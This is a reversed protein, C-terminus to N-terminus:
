RPKPGPNQLYGHFLHELAEIQEDLSVPLLQATYDLLVVGNVTSGDEDVFKLREAVSRNVIRMAHYRHLLDDFDPYIKQGRRLRLLCSVAYMSVVRYLTEDASSLPLHFRAMPKLFETHPCGCTAILLGVLSSIAEQASTTATVTRQEITVEVALEQYSRIGGLRTVVPLLRVALPCHPHDAARWPCNPCQQFDLRTWEPLEGAPQEVPLLTQPHLRIDFRETRGDALGIHYRIDVTEM